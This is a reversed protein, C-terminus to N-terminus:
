LTPSFRLNEYKVNFIYKCVTAPLTTFEPPLLSQKIVTSFLLFVRCTILFTSNNKPSDERRKQIGSNVASYVSCNKNLQESLSV